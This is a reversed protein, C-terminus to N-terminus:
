HNKKVAVFSAFTEAAPNDLLKEYKSITRKFAADIIEKREDDSTNKLERNNFYRMNGGGVITDIIKEKNKPLMTFVYLKDKEAVTKQDACPVFKSIGYVKNEENPVLKFGTNSLHEALCDINFMFHYKDLKYPDVFCKDSYGREKVIKNFSECFAKHFPHSLFHLENIRTGEYVENLFDFQLGSENFILKGNDKLVRYFEKLSSEIYDTSTPNEDGDKFAFWHFSSACFIRDTTKEGVLDSLEQAKGKILTVKNRYPTMEERQKQIREIVEEEVRFGLNQWDITEEGFRYRAIDIYGDSPEVGKIEKLNPNSKIFVIMSNGTGAGVDVLTENDKIGGGLQALVQASVAYGGDPKSILEYKTLGYELTFIQPM